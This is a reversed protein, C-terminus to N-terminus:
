LVSGPRADREREKQFVSIACVVAARLRREWERERERERERVERSLVSPSCATRVNEFIADDEKKGRRGWLARELAAESERQRLWM